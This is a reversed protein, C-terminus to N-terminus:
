LDRDGVGFGWVFSDGLVVIRRAPGRGHDYATGRYGYHNQTVHHRTDVWEFDAAADALGDWGLAEDYRSFKGRESEAFRHLRIVRAQDPLLLRAALEGILLGAFIGALLLLLNQITRRATAM